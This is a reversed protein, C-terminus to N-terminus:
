LNLFSNSCNLLKIGGALNLYSGTTGNAGQITCNRVQFYVDESDVILIGSNIPSTSADITCNEIIYPDEFTGSGICWDEAATASWNGPISGNVYIFSPTYGGSSHPTVDVGDNKFENYQANQNGIESVIIPYISKETTLIAIAGLGFILITLISIIQIKKM